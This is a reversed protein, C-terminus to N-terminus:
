DASRSAHSQATATGAAPLSLQASQVPVVKGEAVVAGSARVPEATPQEAQAQTDPKGGSCAATIVVLALLVLGVAGIRVAATNKGTSM